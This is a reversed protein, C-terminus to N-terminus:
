KPNRSGIQKAPNGRYVAWPDLDRFAAGRAGLVAGQGCTVGPGVFAEAAIWVNDEVIIPRTILAFNPDHIDHTGTCLHSGQSVVVQKGIFIRSQTYLTVRPGIVSRSQMRLHPPYWIRVSGYIRCSAHIDAGFLSLWFIRWGHWPAPTWRAVLFWVISWVARFARHSFGFSPAGTFLNNDRSANLPSADDLM